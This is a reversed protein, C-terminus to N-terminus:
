PITAEDIYDDWNYVNLVTNEAAQALSPMITIFMSIGM